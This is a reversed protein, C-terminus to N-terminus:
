RDNIGLESSTYDPNASIASLGVSWWYDEDWYSDETCGIFALAGKGTSRVFASAMNTSSSFRATQCANSIIIPYRRKNTLSEAFQYDIGTSVWESPSGHGTYNVFGIGSDFLAQASDYLQTRISYNSEYLFLHNSINNSAKLYNNNAYNLQGDLHDPNYEEDGALLMTKEFHTISDGFEFLEYQLIKEVIAKMQTTDFAPLRGTYMDPLYDGNGDFESYYMDSLAEAGEYPAEAGESEPVINLDGGIILFDPHPNDEDALAWIADLTDKISTFNRELGNEGIYLETVNFGKIRKWDILPKLYDKMLTDSLVILGAPSLTFSPTIDNEDYDSIGKSVIGKSSYITNAVKTTAVNSENIEIEVEMSTILDFYNSAPYYIVPNILVQALTQGRIIGLKNITITDVVSPNNNRYFETDQTFPQDQPDQNKTYSPQSPYLQGSFGESGPYIRKSKVNRIRISTIEKGSIDITSTFVPVEPLGPAESHMFGPIYLTFFEQQGVVKSGYQLDTASFSINIHRSDPKSLLAGNEWDRELVDQGTLNVSCLILFIGWFSSYKIVKQKL